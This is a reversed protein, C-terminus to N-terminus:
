RRGRRRPESREEEPVVEEFEYGTLKEIPDPVTFVLDTGCAYVDTAGEPPYRLITQPVRYKPM